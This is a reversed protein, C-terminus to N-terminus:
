RAPCFTMALSSGAFRLRTSNPSTGEIAAGSGNMRAVSHRSELPLGSGRRAHAPM